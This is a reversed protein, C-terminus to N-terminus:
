AAVEQVPHGTTTTFYTQVIRRWPASPLDPRLLAVAACYKSVKVPRLGLQRLARDARSSGRKSKVEVMAYAEGMAMGSTASAAGSLWLDVDLTVRTEDDLSVLTARRNATTYSPQFRGPLPQRYAAEVVSAVFEHGNTELMPAPGALDLEGTYEIRTKRTVARLGKHKVELFHTDTDTYSRLRVKYRRRRGQLHDRYTDLDVTDFYTSHYGMLRRGDIDLVAFHGQTLSFFDMLTAADVFYKRDVRTMLAARDNVEALGIGDLHGVAEEIVAAAKM